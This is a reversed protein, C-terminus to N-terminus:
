IHIYIIIIDGKNSSINMTFYYKHVVIYKYQLNYVIFNLNNKTIQKLNIIYHIM